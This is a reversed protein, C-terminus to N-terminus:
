PGSWGAAQRATVLPYRDRAVPRREAALLRGLHQRTGPVDVPRQSGHPGGTHTIKHHAGVSPGARRGGGTRRGHREKANSASMISRIPRPTPGPDGRCEAFVTLCKDTRGFCHGACARVDCDTATWYKVQVPSDRVSRDYLDASRVPRQWQPRAYRHDIMAPIGTSASAACDIMPRVVPGTLNLPKGSVFAAYHNTPMMRSITGPRWRETPDRLRPQADSRDDQHTGAKDDPSDKLRVTIVIADALEYRGAFLDLRYRRSDLRAIMDPVHSM